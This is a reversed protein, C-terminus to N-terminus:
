RPEPPPRPRPRTPPWRRSWRAARPTPRVRLPQGARRAPRRRQRRRRARGRQLPPFEETWRDYNMANLCFYVVDAGACVSPPSPAPRHRRRRRGDAGPSDGRGSRNVAVVEHGAAVLQEVLPRGVQGTGFVVHRSMVSKETRRAPAALVPLVATLLTSRSRAPPASSPSSSTSRSASRPPSPGASAWAVALYAPWLSRSRRRHPTAARVAQAAGVAARQHRGPPGPRRARHRFDVVAAGVALGAALGVATALSGPAAVTSGCPGPRSPASSPAPSSGASSPRPWPQRRPRRAAHRRPRRAPLRRVLGALPRRHPRTSPPATRSPATSLQSM